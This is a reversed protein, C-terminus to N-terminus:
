APFIVLLSVPGVSAEPAEFTRAVAHWTKFLAPARDAAAEPPNWTGPFRHSLLAPRSNSLLAPSPFGGTLFAQQRPLALLGSVIQLRNPLVLPALDVCPASYLLVSHVLLSAAAKRGSRLTAWRLLCAGVGHLRESAGMQGNARKRPPHSGSAERPPRGNARPLPAPWRLVHRAVSFLSSRCPSVAPARLSPCSPFGSGFMGGSLGRACSLGGEAGQGAGSLGALWCRRGAVAGDAALFRQIGETEGDPGEGLSV